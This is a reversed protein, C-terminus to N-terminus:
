VPEEGRARIAARVADIESMTQRPPPPAPRGRSASAANGGAEGEVDEDMDEGALRAARRHRQVGQQLYRLSDQHLREMRTELAEMRAVLAGVEPAQAPASDPTTMSEIRATLERMVEVADPQPRRSMYIYIAGALVVIVLLVLVIEIYSM